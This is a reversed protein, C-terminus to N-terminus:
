LKGDEAATVNGSDRLHTESDFLTEAHGMDYDPFDVLLLDTKEKMKQAHHRYISQPDTNYEFCNSYILYLDEIFERSSRYQQRKVKKTMTGLDMPM